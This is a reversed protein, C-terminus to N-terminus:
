SQKRNKDELPGFAKVVEWFYTNGEWSVGNHWWVSWGTEISEKFKLDCLYYGPKVRKSEDVLKLNMQLVM